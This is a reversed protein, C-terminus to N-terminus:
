LQFLTPELVIGKKALHLLIVFVLNRLNKKSGLWTKGNRLLYNGLPVNVSVVFDSDEALQHRLGICGVNDLCDCSDWIQLHQDEHSACTTAIVHM